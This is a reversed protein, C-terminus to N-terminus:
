KSKKDRGSAVAEDAADVTSAAAAVAAAPAASAAAPAKNKSSRRNTEPAAAALGPVKANAARIAEKKNPAAHPKVPPKAVGMVSELVFREVGARQQQQQQQQQQDQQQQQQQQLLPIGAPVTLTKLQVKGRKEPRRQGGLCRLRGKARMQVKEAVACLARKRLRRWLQLLSAAAAAAPVAAAAAAKPSAKRSPRVGRCAFLSSSVLFGRHESRRQQKKWRLRSSRTLRTLRLRLFRYLCGLIWRRCRSSSSSSSSPAYLLLSLPSILVEHLQEDALGGLM